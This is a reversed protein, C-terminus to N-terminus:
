TTQEKKLPQEQLGSSAEVSANSDQQKPITTAPPQSESLVQDASAEALNGETPEPAPASVKLATPQRQFLAKRKNFFQHFLWTIWGWLRRGPPIRSPPVEATPAGEEVRQLEELREVQQSALKHWYAVEIFEAWPRGRALSLLRLYNPKLAGVLEQWYALPLDKLQGTEPTEARSEWLLTDTQTLCQALAECWAAIDATSGAERWRTVLERVEELYNQTATLHKLEAEWQEPRPAMQRMETLTTAAEDLNAPREAQEEWRTHLKGLNEGVQQERRKWEREIDALSEAAAASWPNREVASRLWSRLQELDSLALEKVNRGSLVASVKALLCSCPERGQRWIRWAKLLSENEIPYDPALLLLRDLQVLAAEQRRKRTTEKKVRKSAANQWTEQAEQALRALAQDGEEKRQAQLAELAQQRVEELQKQVDTLASKMEDDSSGTVAATDQAVQLKTQAVLCCELALLPSSHGPKRQQDPGTAMQGLYSRAQEVWHRAADLANVLAKREVEEIQDDLEQLTTLARSSWDDVLMGKAEEAKARQERAIVVNGGASLALRAENICEDFREKWWEQIRTWLNRFEANERLFDEGRRAQQAAKFALKMNREAKARDGATQAENYYQHAEKVLQEVQQQKQEEALLEKVSQDWPELGEQEAERLISARKDATTAQEFRLRLDTCRERRERVAQARKKLAETSLDPSWGVELGQLVSVARQACGQALVLEEKAWDLERITALSQVEGVRVLYARIGQQVEGALRQLGSAFEEENPFAERYALLAQSAEVVREPADDSNLIVERVRDLLNARLEAAQNLGFEDRPVEALLAQLRLLTVELPAPEAPPTTASPNMPQGTMAEHVRGRQRALRGLSSWTIRDSQSRAWQAFARAGQWVAEDDLLHTLEEDEPDEQMLQKFVQEAQWFDQAVWLRLGLRGLEEPELELEERAAAMAECDAANNDPDPLFSLLAWYPVLTTLAAADHYYRAATRYRGRAKHNAAARLKLRLEAENLLGRLEERWDSM